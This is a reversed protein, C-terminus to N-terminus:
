QQPSTVELAAAAGDRLANLFVIANNTALKQKVYRGYFVEYLDLVTNAATEIKTNQAEKVIPKFATVLDGPAYKGAVVFTDLAAVSLKIYQRNGENERLALLATNKAAVKLIVASDQISQPDVPQATQCGTFLSFSLALVLVLLKKM